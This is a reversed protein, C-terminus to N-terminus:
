RDVALIVVLLTGDGRQRISRRRGINAQDWADNLVEALAAAQRENVPHSGRTPLACM